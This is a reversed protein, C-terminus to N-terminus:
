FHPTADCPPYILFSQVTNLARQTFTCPPGNLSIQQLVTLGSMLLGKQFCFLESNGLQKSNILHNVSFILKHFCFNENIGALIFSIFNPVM